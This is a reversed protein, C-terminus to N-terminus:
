LAGSAKAKQRVEEETLLGADHLASLHDLVDASTVTDDRVDGEPAPEERVRRGMAETAAGAKRRMAASLGGAVRLAQAAGENRSALGMTLKARRELWAIRRGVTFGRREPRINAFTLREGNRMRFVYMCSMAKSLGLTVFDLAYSVPNSNRTDFSEIDQWVWHRAERGKLDATAFGRDTILILRTRNGVAAGQLHGSVLSIPREGSGLTAALAATAPGSGFRLSAPLLSRIDEIM